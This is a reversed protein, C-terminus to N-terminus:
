IPKLRWRFLQSSCDPSVIVNGGASRVLAVEDPALVTGAGVLGDSGLHRKVLSAAIAISEFADPSNLPVEIATFGSELLLSVVSETESPTIGRLISILRHDVDRFPADQIFSDTM